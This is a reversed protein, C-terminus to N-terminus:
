PLRDTAAECASLAREPVSEFGRVLAKATAIQQKSMRWVVREVQGAAWRNGEGAALAFWLYAQVLDRGVGFGRDYMEGLNAQAVPEGQDAARRYWRVAARLDVARGEGFRHMGAIAIQAQPDGGRALKHWATFATAYDGGDYAQTARAFDAPASPTSAIFVLAGLVLARLIM